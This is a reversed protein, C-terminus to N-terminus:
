MSHQGTNTGCIVPTGIGGTISFRDTLCDGIADGNSSPSATDTVTGTRPGALTFDEFDFKIRCVSTTCPCITYTCPASLSTVETEEIYTCNESSTAGCEISFLCCVGYGEACSGSATGARDDCETSFLIKLYFHRKYPLFKRPIALEMGEQVAKAHIM